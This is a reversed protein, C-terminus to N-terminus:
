TAPEEAAIHAAFRKAAGVSSAEVFTVTEGRKFVVLGYADADGGGWVCGSTLEALAAECRRYNKDRELVGFEEAASGWGKPHMRLLASVYQEGYEWRLRIYEVGDHGQKQENVKLLWAPEENNLKDILRSRLSPSEQAIFGTPLSLMCVLAFIMKVKRKMSVEHSLWMVGSNLRRVVGGCGRLSEIVDLSFGTPQLSNNPPVSSTVVCRRNHKQEWSDNLTVETSHRLRRVGPMVRRANLQALPLNEILAASNATPHM